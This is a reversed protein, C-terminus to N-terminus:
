PSADMRLTQAPVPAAKADIDYESEAAGDEKAAPQGSVVGGVLGAAGDVPPTKAAAGVEKADGSSGTVSPPVVNITRDGLEIEREAVSGGPLYVMSTVRLKGARKTRVGNHEQLLTYVLDYLRRDRSSDSLLPSQKAGAAAEGDDEDEETEEGGAEALTAAAAATEAVAATEAAAATEAEAPGAAAASEATADLGMRPPVPAPAAAPASASASDEPASDAPAPAPAAAPAPSPAPAPAPAPSEEGLGEILVEDTSAAAESDTRATADTDAMSDTSNLFAAALSSLITAPLIKEINKPKPTSDSLSGESDQRLLEELEADTVEEVGRTPRSMIDSVKDVGAIAADVQGEAEQLQRIQEPTLAAAM